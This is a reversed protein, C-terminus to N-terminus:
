GRWPGVAAGSIERIVEGAIILGAVSPVFAVSGPVPHRGTIESYEVPNLAAPPEKSYLVKCKKIGRAKLERRMVRALPCVSTKNIDTIELLQPNLKNGVGMCSIVPVGFRHAHEILLLKATVTDVADVMYDYQEFPFADQNSTDYFCDYTNVVAGPNIDLLREKMVEVKPRGVTSHLALLQRNINSVSVVDGDVMVITGVGARALAEVTFSGVGGVGFVVVKADMLHRIGQSGLLMQTRSLEEIM